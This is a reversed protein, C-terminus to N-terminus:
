FSWFAFIEGTRFQFPWILYEMSHVHTSPLEFSPFLFRKGASSVRTGATFGGASPARYQLVKAPATENPLGNVWQRTTFIIFMFAYVM